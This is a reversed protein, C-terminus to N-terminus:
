RKPAKAPESDSIDKSNNIALWEEAAQLLTTTENPYRKEVAGEWLASLLNGMERLPYKGASFLPRLHNGNVALEKLSLPINSAIRSQLADAYAALAHFAESKAKEPSHALAQAAHSTFILSPLGLQLAEFTSLNQLSVASLVHLLHLVQTTEKESFHLAKLAKQLSPSSVDFFLLALRGALPSIGSTPRLFSLADANQTQMALTPFIHTWAGTQTLTSLGSRTAPHTRKLSPYRLDAMVIKEFEDRIRESAIEQLLPSFKEASVLLRETPTLGLEAQFRAARLIRLGDDKLVQDPDDTVTHLIGQELHVLGGTPDYLKGTHPKTLCRYLANVSFDRRLADVRIDTTFRVQSPQHGCRYSDERFTTYEAMHRIGDSDTIHLEVTGFHAARLHARVPTGSCVALVEAPLGPGCVDVDSIPLGMLPNRVAGGVIYFPLNANEFVQALSFIWPAYMTKKM